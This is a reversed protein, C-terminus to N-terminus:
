STCSRATAYTSGSTLVAAGPGDASQIIVPFQRTGHRGEQWGPIADAGYSGAALMIRYGTGSLQAGSPVRNWAEIITRLAHARSSGTASDDGRGPDVWIDRV